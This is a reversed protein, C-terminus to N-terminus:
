SEENASKKSNCSRCLFRLNELVSPGGKAVPKKHDLQLDEISGCDVRACIRGDRKEVALLFTKHHKSALQRQIEIQKRTEAWQECYIEYERFSELAVSCIRSTNAAAEIETKCELASDLPRKVGSCTFFHRVDSRLNWMLLYAELLRRARAVPRNKQMKRWSEIKAVYEGSSIPVSRKAPFLTAREYDSLEMIMSAGDVIIEWESDPVSQIRFRRWWEQCVFNLISKWRLSPNDTMLIIELPLVRRPTVLRRYTAAPINLSKSAALLSGYYLWASRLEFDGFAVVESVSDHIRRLLRRNHPKVGFTKFDLEAM